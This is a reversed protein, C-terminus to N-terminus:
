IHISYVVGFFRQSKKRSKRFFCNLNSLSFTHQTVYMQCAQATFEKLLDLLIICIICIRCFIFCIKQHTIQYNLNHLLANFLHEKWQYCSLFKFLMSMCTKNHIGWFIIFLLLQTTHCQPWTCLLRSNRNNNLNEQFLSLRM